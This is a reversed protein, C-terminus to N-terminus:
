EAPDPGAPEHAKRGHVREYAQCYPCFRSEIKTVFWYLLGKGQRRAYRCVPCEVCKQAMARDQDTTPASTM